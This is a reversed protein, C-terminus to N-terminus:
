TYSSWQPRVFMAMLILTAPLRLLVTGPVGVYIELAFEALLLVLGLWVGVRRGFWVAVVCALGAVGIAIMASLLSTTLKPFATFLADREFLAKGLGFVSVFTFFALTTRLGVSHRASASTTSRPTTETEM